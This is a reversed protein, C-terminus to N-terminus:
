YRSRNYIDKKITSVVTGKKELVKQFSEFYNEAPYIDNLDRIYNCVDIEELGCDAMEDYIFDKIFSHLAAINTRKTDLRGESVSFNGNLLFFLHENYICSYPPLSEIEIGSTALLILEEKVALLESIFLENKISLKSKVKKDGANEAFGCYRNKEYIPAIPVQFRYISNKLKDCIEESPLLIETIKKEDFFTLNYEGFRYTTGFSTQRLVKESNREFNFEKSFLKYM